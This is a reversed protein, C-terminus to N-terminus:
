KILINMKILLGLFLDVIPLSSFLQQALALLDITQGAWGSGGAVFADTM